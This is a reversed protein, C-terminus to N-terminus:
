DSKVKVSPVKDYSYLSPGIHSCSICVHAQITAINRLYSKINLNLM